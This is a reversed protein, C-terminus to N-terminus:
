CAVLTERIHKSACSVVVAVAVFFKHLYWATTRIENVLTLTLTLNNCTSEKVFQIKFSLMNTPYQSQM